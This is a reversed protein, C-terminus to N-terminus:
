AAAARDWDKPMPRLPAAFGLGIAVVILTVGITDGALSIGRGPGNGLQIAIQINLTFITGLVAGLFTMTASLLAGVAALRTVTLSRSPDDFGRLVSRILYAWALIGFSAVVYSPGLTSSSIPNAINAPQLAIVILALVITAAILLAALNALGAVWAPPTAANLTSLGRGLVVWGLGTLAVGVLTLWLQPDIDGPGLMGSLVARTPTGLLEVLAVIVAGRFIWPTATEADARRLVVAAPLLILADHPLFATLFSEPNQASLYMRPEVVGIWRGIVDLLALVIFVLAIRPMGRVFADLPAPVRIPDVVGTDSV